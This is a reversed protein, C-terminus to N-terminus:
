HGCAKLFRRGLPTLVVARVEVDGYISKWTASGIEVLNQRELLYAEDEFEYMITHEIPGHEDATPGYSSSSYSRPVNAHIIRVDAKPPHLLLRRGLDAAKEEGISHRVEGVLEESFGPMDMQVESSLRELAKEVTQNKQTYNNKGNISDLLKADDPGIESLVRLYGYHASKFDTSAEALLSAWMEELGEGEEELSAQEIFPLSFKIPPPIIVQGRNEVMLKAEEVIRAAVDHRYARVRDGVLGMGETFPALADLLAHVARDAAATSVEGKLEAKASIDITVPVQTKDNM